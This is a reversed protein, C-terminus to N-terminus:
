WIFWLLVIVVHILVKKTGKKYVLSIPVKVGDRATAYLRESVYNDKSFNSDLVEQEKLVKQEKTDMNYDIVSNPTTLSTYSYRM